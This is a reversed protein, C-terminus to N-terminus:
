ILPQLIPQSITVPFHVQTPFILQSFTHQLYPIPTFKSESYHVPIFVSDPFNTSPKLEPFRKVTAISRKSKLSAVIGTSIKENNGDKASSGLQIVKIMESIEDICEQVLEISTKFKSDHDSAEYGQKFRKNSEQYKNRAEEYKQMKMLENAQEHLDVGQNFLENGQIKLTSIQSFKIYECNLSDLRLAENSMEDANRFKEKADNDNGNVEAAWAENWLTIGVRSLAKAQNLGMQRASTEFRSDFVLKFGQQFKNRAEQYKNSAEQLKQKKDFELGQNYFENGQFKLTSVQTFRQLDSSGPDLRLAQNFLEDAKKFKEKADNNNGKEEAAWAENWLTLGIRSLARAQNQNMQKILRAEYPPFSAQAEKFKAIAENYRGLNFLREGEANIILAKSKRYNDIYAGRLGEGVCTNFAHLFKEAAAEYNQVAFFDWGQLNFVSAM